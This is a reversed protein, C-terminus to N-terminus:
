FSVTAKTQMLYISDTPQNPPRLDGGRFADGPALWGFDLGLALRDHPQYRLMLDTEYGVDKAVTGMTIEPNEQLQAWLFRGSLTWRDSFHYHATPSVYFVNSLSETDADAVGNTSKGGAHTIFTDYRGVVHNFLILSVDYNRDFLFGEYKDDTSYNDGSALGMKLGWDWASGKPRYSFESALGFAELAIPQGASNKMGSNGNLFGAEVGIGFEEVNKTVSLNIRKGEWSDDVTGTVGTLATPVDNGGRSLAVRQEYFVGLGLGTDPNDYQFQLMYDDVDDERNLYGENVKGMMPTISMNGILVKYGIIDKSDYWHDFEGLGANHTMGLGFQIPARGVILTSFEQMWMMYLRHVKISDPTQTESLTNSDGAGTTSTATTGTSYNPNPGSGMFQGMQSNSHYPRSNNMVGFTGYINLGDAAVIKPELLLHHLMYAKSGGGDVATTNAVSVGEFRYRGSWDIDGAVASLPNLFLSFFIIFFLTKL